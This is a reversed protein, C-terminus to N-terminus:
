QNKAEVDLFGALVLAMGRCADNQSNALIDRCHAPLWKSLHNVFFNRYATLHLNFNSLDKQALFKAAQHLLYCAFEAEFGIFDDPECNKNQVELGMSRYFERVELTEKQMLLGESNLYASEYPPAVLKGPGVFLRNFEYVASSDYAQLLFLGSLYDENQTFEELGSLIEVAELWRQGDDWLHGFYYSRIVAYFRYRCEIASLDNSKRNQKM